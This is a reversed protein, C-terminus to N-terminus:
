RDTRNSDSDVLRQVVKLEGLNSGRYKQSYADSWDWGNTPRSKQHVAGSEEAGECFTIM